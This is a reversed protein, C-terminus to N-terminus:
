ARDCLRRADEDGLYPLGRDGALRRQLIMDVALRPARGAADVDRYHGARQTDPSLSGPRLKLSPRGRGPKLSPAQFARRAARPTCPPPRLSLGPAAPWSAMARPAGRPIPLFAEGPRARDRACPSRRCTSRLQLAAPGTRQRPA